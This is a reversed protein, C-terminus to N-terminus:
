RLQDQFPREGSQTEPQANKRSSKESSPEESQSCHLRTRTGALTGLARDPLAQQRFQSRKGPILTRGPVRAFQHLQGSLSGLLQFGIKRAIYRLKEIGEQSRERQKDDCQKEIHRRCERKKETYRQNRDANHRHLLERLFEKRFVPPLVGRKPIREQLIQLPQRCQFDILRILRPVFFHILFRLIEPFDGHPHQDHLQVGDRHHIKNGIPSSGKPHQQPDQCPPGVGHGQEPDQEQDQNGRFEKKGHPCKATEEVDGHISLGSGPLEERNQFSNGPDGPGPNRVRQVNFGSIKAPFVFRAVRHQLIHRQMDLRPCGNANRSLRAGAFACQRSQDASSQRVATDGNAAYRHRVDIRGPQLLVECHEVMM